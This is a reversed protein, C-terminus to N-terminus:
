WFIFLLKLHNKLLQSHKKLSQFMSCQSWLVKWPYAHIVQFSKLQLMNTSSPYHPKFTILGFAMKQMRLKKNKMKLQNQNFLHNKVSLGCLGSSLEPAMMDQAIRRLMILGTFIWSKKFSHWQLCVDNWSIFIDSFNSKRRSYRCFIPPPSNTLYLIFLYFNTNAVVHLM